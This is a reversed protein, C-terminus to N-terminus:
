VTCFFFFPPKADLLFNPDTEKPSPTFGTSADRHLLCDLFPLQMPLSDCTSACCALALERRRHLLHSCNWVCGTPLVQSPQNQAVSPLWLSSLPPPASSSSSAFPWVLGEMELQHFSGTESRACAKSSVRSANSAKNNPKTKRCHTTKHIAPVGM